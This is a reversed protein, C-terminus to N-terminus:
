TTGFINGESDIALGNPWGGDDESTLDHITTYIWGDNTPTL